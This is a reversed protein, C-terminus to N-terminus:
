YRWNNWDDRTWPKGDARPFLLEDNGFRGQAMRWEALDRALPALLRVTRSSNTKTEKLEGFSVSGEVTITREGIHRWCLALAEGPRLGAYALVSVLVADRLPVQARLGEIMGPPLVKVERKRRSPPKRVSGDWLCFLCDDGATTHEGLVDCLPGLVEPALNGRQPNSGPWQSGTINLADSSGVLAHWQMLSHARRGTSRAVESWGVLSGDQGVAPHCIRVYAPYGRPLTRGVAGFDGGLRPAIWAAPSADDSVRLHNAPM